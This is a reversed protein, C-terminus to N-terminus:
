KIKFHREFIEKTVTYPKHDRSVINIKGDQEVMIYYTGKMFIDTTKGTNTKDAVSGVIELEELCEILVGKAM